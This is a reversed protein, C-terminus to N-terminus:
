LLIRYSAPFWIPKNKNYQMHHLNNYNNTQYYTLNMKLDWFNPENLGPRRRFNLILFGSHPILALARIFFINFSLIAM